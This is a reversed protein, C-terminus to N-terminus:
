QLSNLIDDIWNNINTFQTDINNEEEVPYKAKLGYSKLNIKGNAIVCLCGGPFAKDEIAENILADITKNM